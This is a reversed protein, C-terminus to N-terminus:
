RDGDGDEDGSDAADDRNSLDELDPTEPRKSAPAAAAAPSPRAASDQVSGPGSGPGSDPAAEPAAAAAAGALAEPNRIWIDRQAFPIEIGAEDFRRAIDYNMDSKVSLVWNVDRLIARIEFNLSDAGFGQFVVSPPPNMLVMPHAKAVEILIAEVKRPDTGYSVGVPVIVRGVTNGRTYNTVTGTILDSNPVIVDTRDFTEIRTSRVSIDRVYGMLGGVEIWDGKSVPREVLLIIGSVFNSVITQLGFGIGVSLAGAVIALSSLDLGAMSIAVLAALFIGVYGMGSVIANQGGVDIRTKPLLANRLSGQVLRTLGYGVAFITVFTLFATPSIRTDGIQFGELFNSWLETLDAVRAGWILALMPLAVLALAFGILATFLSDRAASGKGTVFGYLDAFFRQLVFLGALMALTLMAPYIVAEAANLYGVAALLPGAFGLLYIARRVVAIIRNAGAAIAGEEPEEESQAQRQKAGIRHLRLLILAACSILPFAYVASSSDPINQIREITAFVDQLVLIVAMMDILFRTEAQNGEQVPLLDNEIQNTYLQEGLWHFSLMIFAWAPVSELFISGRVGLIGSLDVAAVLFIVGILPLLVQLLSVVFTWVGTGRAGYRRLYDGALHAWPRGRLILLMGILVLVLIGVLDGSIRESTTDNRLQSLTENGVARSAHVLDRLAGPWHEPNLPSTGREFLRKTLRERVIKDIENILGDARSYAEEAVIRPVRLENLQQTLADRLQAIDEPEEEGEGPPAGLADLQGQLTQIREGNEGRKTQFTQRFEALESRLQELAINSARSADIVNEARNATRLWDEYYSKSRADLQALAPFALSILLVLGALCKVFGRMLAIM